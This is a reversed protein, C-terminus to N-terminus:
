IPITEVIPTTEAIPIVKTPDLIIQSSNDVKVDNETISKNLLLFAQFDAEIDTMNMPVSTKIQVWNGSASRVWFSMDDMQCLYVFGHNVLNFIYSFNLIKM